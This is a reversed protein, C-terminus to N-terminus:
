VAANRRNGGNKLAHEHCRNKITKKEGNLPKTSVIVCQDQLWGVAVLFIRRFGTKPDLDLPPLCLVAQPGGLFNAPGVLWGLTSFDGLLLASRYFPHATFVLFLRCGSGPSRGWADFVMHRFVQRRCPRALAGVQVMRTKFM